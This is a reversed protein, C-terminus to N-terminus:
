EIVCYLAQFVCVDLFIYLQLLIQGSYSFFRNFAFDISSLDSKSLSCAELGCLLLPLCKSNLLHLSDYSEHFRESNSLVANNSAATAIVTNNEGDDSLERDGRWSIERVAASHKICDQM